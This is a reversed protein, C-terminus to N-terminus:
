ASVAKGTANRTVGARTRRAAKPTRRVRPDIAGYGVDVLMNIVVFGVAIFAVVGQVAVIDRQVISTSIFQGLGPLVFLAEVIITGGILRALSLGSITLLSFSSPRFAHRFMVYGGTMGKARAAAVFDERLTGILDARLVRHFAAIETLAVAIAPLIASRLNPGLGDEIPVWGLAPLVKLSVAFIFILVPGAVFAPISLFASTVANIGRDLASNPFAASLVALPISVALAIVLALVALELTVPLRQAISEMVPIHTIPSTGLDGQLAALLWDVYQVVFPRDYGLAANMEAVADPTANEGLIVEAVSGPALSMLAQVGITVLLIVLLAYGARRLLDAWM